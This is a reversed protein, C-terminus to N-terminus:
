PNIYAYFKPTSNPWMGVCDRGSFGGSCNVKADAENLTREPLTAHATARVQSEGLAVGYRNDPATWTQTVLYGDERLEKVEEFPATMLQFVPFDIPKAAMNSCVQKGGITECVVSHCLYFGETVHVRVRFGRDFGGVAEDACGLPNEFSVAACNPENLGRTNMWYSKRLLIHDELVDKEFVKKVHAATKELKTYALYFVKAIKVFDIINVAKSPDMSHAHVYHLCDGVCVNPPLEKNKEIPSPQNVPLCPDPPDPANPGPCPGTGRGSDAPFQIEWVADDETHERGPGAPSEGSRDSNPFLGIMNYQQVLGVEGPGCDSGSSCAPGNRSDWYLRDPFVGNIYAARNMFDAYQEMEVSVAADMAFQRQIKEHSVKTVEMLLAVFLFLSPVVLLIPFILQGRENM